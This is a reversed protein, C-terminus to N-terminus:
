KAEVHASQGENLRSDNWSGVCCGGFGYPVLATIFRTFYVNVCMLASTALTVQLSSPRCPKYVYFLSRSVPRSVSTQFYLRIERERLEHVWQPPPWITNIIDLRTNTAFLCHVKVTWVFRVNSFNVSLFVKLLLVFENSYNIGYWLLYKVNIFYMNFCGCFSMAPVRRSRFNCEPNNWVHWLKFGFQHIGRLVRWYMALDQRSSSHKSNLERTHFEIMLQKVAALCRPQALMTELADWESYEIDM